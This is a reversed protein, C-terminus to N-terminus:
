CSGGGDAAPSMVLGVPQAAAHVANDTKPPNVTDATQQVAKGVQEPKSIASQLKPDALVRSFIEPAQAPDFDAAGEICAQTYKETVESSSSEPAENIIILLGSTMPLTLWLSFGNASMEFNFPLANKCTNSKCGSTAAQVLEPKQLQEPGLDRPQGRSGPQGKTGSQSARAPQSSPTAAANSPKAAGSSGPAAPNAPATM